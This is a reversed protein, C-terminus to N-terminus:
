IDERILETAHALARKLYVAGPDDARNMAGMLTIWEENTASDGYSRLVQSLYDGIELGSAKARAQTETLLALGSSLITELAFTEDEFRALLDGLLM